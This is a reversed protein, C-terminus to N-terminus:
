RLARGFSLCSFCNRAQITIRMQFRVQDIDARQFRYEIEKDAFDGKLASKMEALTIEGKRDRDIAMFLERLKSLHTAQAKHAVAYLALKKIEKMPSNSDAVSQLVGLETMALEKINTDTHRRLWSSNLAEIPSSRLIPEIELLERIFSKAQRSVPKWEPGDFSYRAKAVNQAIEKKDAGWFPRRGSLLHYTMVGLSWMDAQENYEGRLAEPSMTYITGARDHLAAHRKAFVKALGFDLLRINHPDKSEDAFM